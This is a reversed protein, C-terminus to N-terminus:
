VKRRLRKLIPIALLVSAFTLITAPEPYVSPPVMVTDPVLKTGADIFGAGSKAYWEGVIPMSSSRFSFALYLDDPDAAYSLLDDGFGEWNYTDPDVFLVADGDPVLGGSGDPANWKDGWYKGGPVPGGIYGYEFDALWDEIDGDNTWVQLSDWDISNFGSEETPFVDAFHSLEKYTFESGQDVAMVLYDYQVYTENGDNVVTARSLVEYEFVFVPKAIAATTIFHM